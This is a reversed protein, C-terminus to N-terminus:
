DNDDEKVFISDNAPVNRENGNREDHGFLWHLRRLVETAEDVDVATVSFFPLGISPFTHRTTPAPSAMPDATLQHQM